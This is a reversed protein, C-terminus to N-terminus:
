TISHKARKAASGQRSDARMSRRYDDLFGQLIPIYENFGLTRLALIVDDGTITKRKERALRETAESTVFGIFESVCEQVVEKADRAIKGSEPLPQRM